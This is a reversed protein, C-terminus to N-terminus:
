LSAEIADVLTGSQPSTFSLFSDVMRGDRDYSYDCAALDLGLARRARDLAVHNPDPRDLYRIEEARTRSNV